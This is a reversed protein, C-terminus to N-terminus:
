KFDKAIRTYHEQTTKVSTHLGLSSARQIGHERFENSISSMRIDKPRSKMDPILKAFKRSFKKQLKSRTLDFVFHGSITKGTPTTFSRIQYTGNNVKMEKFNMVQAYLEESITFKKRQNKKNAYYLVSKQGDKDEFDEFRLTLMENPRSALSWMIHILLADEYQGKEYLLNAAKLYQDKNIASVNEERGQKNSSFKIKPFDQKKIGFSCIALRKMREWHLSLSTSAMSNTIDLNTFYNKLNDISFISYKLKFQNYATKIGAKVGVSLNRHEFFYFALAKDKDAFKLQEKYFKLSEKELHPLQNVEFKEFPYPDHFLEPVEISHEMVECQDRNSKTQCKDHKINISQFTPFSTYNSKQSLVLQSLLKNQEDMKSLMGDTFRKFEYLMQHEFSQKELMKNDRKKTASLEYISEKSEEKISLQSPNILQEVDSDHNSAFDVWSEIEVIGGNNNLRMKNSARGSSPKSSSRKRLSM